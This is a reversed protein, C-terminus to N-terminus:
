PQRHRSWCGASSASCPGSIRCIRVFAPLLPLRLPLRPCCAAHRRHGATAAMSVRVRRQERDRVRIRTSCIRMATLAMNRTLLSLSAAVTGTPRRGRRQGISCTSEARRRMKHAVQSQEAAAERRLDEAAHQASNPRVREVVFHGCQGSLRQRLTLLWACVHPPPPATRHAM